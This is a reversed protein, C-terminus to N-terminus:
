SRFLLKKIVKGYSGEFEDKKMYKIKILTVDEEDVQYILYNIVQNVNKFEKKIEQGEDTFLTLYIM